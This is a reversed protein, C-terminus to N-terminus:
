ICSIFWPTIQALSGWNTQSLINCLMSAFSPSIPAIIINYTPPLSSDVFVKWFTQHKEWNDKNSRDFKSLPWLYIAISLTGKIIKSFVM